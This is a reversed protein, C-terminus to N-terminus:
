FRNEVDSTDAVKQLHSVSALLQTLAPGRASSCLHSFRARHRWTHQREKLLPTECLGSVLNDSCATQLLAETSPSEWPSARSWVKRFHETSM